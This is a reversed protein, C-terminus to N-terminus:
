NQLVSYVACMITILSVLLSHPSIIEGVNIYLGNLENM